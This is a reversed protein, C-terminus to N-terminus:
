IYKKVTEISMRAAELPHRDYWQDQEVIFAKAGSEMGAELISKVDQCGHGVPMFQFAVNENKGDDTGDARILAYPQAGGKVGVYDKLHIVPCRGAYKRIYDAPNEGAYRAWCTDIETELYPAPVADYLFDLGHMGSLQVFEFDHNHYLLSLGAAKCKEGFHRITSIVRAFGAAGPRDQEGLFPVTIYDCGITKYDAIVGDMDACITDYPVHASLGKLGIEDLMGRIAKPDRGFLGAFEVADYGLAKVKELTGRFDKAMEERASYLQYGILVKEM